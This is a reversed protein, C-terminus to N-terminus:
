LNLRKLTPWVACVWARRARNPMQNKLEAVNTDNGIMEGARPLVWRPAGKNNVVIM